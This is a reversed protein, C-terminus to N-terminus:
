SHEPAQYGYQRLREAAIRQEADSFLDAFEPKLVHAEVSLDLRRHEWLTTFGDSVKPADLLHRATEVGGSTSLMQLFRTANYGLEDKARTYITVMARHFNNEVESPM